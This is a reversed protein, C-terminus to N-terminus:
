PRDLRAQALTSRWGWQYTLRGVADSIEAYVDAPAADDFVQVTGYDISIGAM